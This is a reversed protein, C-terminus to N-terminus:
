NEKKHHIIITKNKEVEAKVIEGTEMETIAEQTKDTKRFGKRIEEEKDGELEYCPGTTLCNLEQKMQFNEKPM